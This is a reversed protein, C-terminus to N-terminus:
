PLSRGHGGGRGGIHHSLEHGVRPRSGDARDRLAVGVIAAIRKQRARREDDSGAKSNEFVADRARDIPRWCMRAGGRALLEWAQAFGHFWSAATGISPGGSVIGMVPKAARNLGIWKKSVPAAGLM